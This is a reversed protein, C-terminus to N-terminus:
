WQLRSIPLRFPFCSFFSLSDLSVALDLFDKLQGSKAKGNVATATGNLGAANADSGDHTDELLSARLPLGALSSALPHHQGYVPDDAESSASSSHSAM